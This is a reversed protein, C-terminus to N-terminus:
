WSPLSNHQCFSSQIVRGCLFFTSHEGMKLASYLILGKLIFRFRTLLCWLGWGVCGMNVRNQSLCSQLWFHIINCNILPLIDKSFIIFHRATPWNSWCTRYRSSRIVQQFIRYLCIVCGMHLKQDWHSFCHGVAITKIIWSGLCCTKCKQLLCGSLYDKIQKEWLYTVNWGVAM